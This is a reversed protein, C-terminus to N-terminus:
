APVVLSDTALPAGFYNADPDVIVTKSDGSEGTLSTMSESVELRQSWRRM